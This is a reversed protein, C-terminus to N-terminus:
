LFNPWSFFCLITQDPVSGPPQSNFPFRAEFPAPFPGEQRDREKSLSSPFCAFLLLILANPLYCCFRYSQASARPCAPLWVAPTKQMSFVGLCQPFIKRDKKKKKEEFTNEKWVTTVHQHCLESQQLTCLGMQAAAKCPSLFAIKIGTSWSEVERLGSSNNGTLTM